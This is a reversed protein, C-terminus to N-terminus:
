TVEVGAVLVSIQNGVQTIAQMIEGATLPVFGSWEFTSGPSITPYNFLRAQQSDSGISVGIPYDTTAHINTVRIYRLIATTAAPVTYLTVGIGGPNILTPGYFRKAMEAM